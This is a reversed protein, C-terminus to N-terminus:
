HRYNSGQSTITTRNFVNGNEMMVKRNNVDVDCIEQPQYSKFQPKYTVVFNFYTKLNSKRKLM